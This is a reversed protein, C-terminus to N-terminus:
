WSAVSPLCVWLILIGAINWFVFLDSTPPLLVGFNSELAATRECRFPVESRTSREWRDVWGGFLVGGLGRWCAGSLVRCGLLSVILAGAEDRIRDERHFEGCCRPAAAAANAVGARERIVPSEGAVTIIFTKHFRHFSVEELGAWEACMKLCSASRSCAHSGHM